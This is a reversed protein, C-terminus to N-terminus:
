SLHPEVQFMVSEFIVLCTLELVLEYFYWNLLIISIVDIMRTGNIFTTKTLVIPLDM